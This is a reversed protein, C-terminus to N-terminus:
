KRKTWIRYKLAQIRLMFSLLLGRLCRSFSLQQKTCKTTKM